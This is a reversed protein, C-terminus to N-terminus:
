ISKIFKAPVGGYISNSLTITSVVAGAALITRSNIVANALVRVGCGIWVDDCIIIRGLELDNYKIPIDMNSYTHNFSVLSSNHAISVNNGIKIGGLADIYTLPHISVNNGITLKEVNYIYCGSKICINDGNLRNISKISIYRIYIGIKGRINRFSYFLFVRVPM